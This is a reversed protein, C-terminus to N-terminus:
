ARTLFVAGRDNCQAVVAFAYPRIDSPLSPLDADAVLFESKGLKVLGVRSGILSKGVAIRAAAHRQAYSGSTKALAVIESAQSTTGLYQPKSLTKM